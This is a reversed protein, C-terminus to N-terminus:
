KRALANYSLESIKTIASSLLSSIGNIIKHDYENKDEINFVTTFTSHIIDSTLKFPLALIGIALPGVKSVVKATLMFPAKVISGALSLTEKANSKNLKNLENDTFAFKKQDSRVALRKLKLGLEKLLNNNKMDPEIKNEDITHQIYVRHDNLVSHIVEDLYSDTDLGTIDGSAIGDNNLKYAQKLDYLYKGRYYIIDKSIGNTIAQELNERNQKASNLWNDYTRAM